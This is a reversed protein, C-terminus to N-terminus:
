TSLTLAYAALFVGYFNKSVVDLGNYAVNRADESPLAAAVGYLGWVGYVSWFLAVSLADSPPVFTALLTFAAVFCAGGLALGALRVLRRTEVLYGAALMGWNLALCAYAAPADRVDALEADPDRHLFFLATTVLMLPTSVVWDLYRAWTRIRRYRCVANAYWAFEVLQSGVELALIVNLDRRAGEDAVEFFYASATVVGLVVQATLSAVASRYVAPSPTPM